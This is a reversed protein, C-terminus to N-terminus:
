MCLNSSMRTRIWKSSTVLIALVRNYNAEEVLLSSFTSPAGVDLQGVSMSYLCELARNPHFLTSSVSGFVNAVNIIIIASAPVFCHIVNTFIKANISGRLVQNFCVM